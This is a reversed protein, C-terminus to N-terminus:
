PRWPIILRGINEPKALERALLLESGYVALLALSGWRPGLTDVAWWVGLTSVAVLLVGVAIHVRRRADDLRRRRLGWGTREVVWVLTITVTTTSAAAMVVVFGDFEALVGVAAVAVCM